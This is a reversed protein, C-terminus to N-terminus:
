FATTYTFGNIKVITIITAQKKQYLFDVLVYYM